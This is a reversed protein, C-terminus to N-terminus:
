NQVAWLSDQKVALERKVSAAHGDFHVVNIRGSHRYAAAMATWTEGMYTDSWWAMIWWDVADAFMLKQSPAIVNSRRYGVYLDAPALNLGTVNAGWSTGMDYRGKADPTGQLSAAADPCIYGKTDYSTGDDDL